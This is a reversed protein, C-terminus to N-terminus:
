LNLLLGLLISKDLKNGLFMMLKVPLTVSDTFGIYRNIM